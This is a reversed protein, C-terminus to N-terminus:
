IYDLKLQYTGSYGKSRCKDIFITPTVANLKKDDYILKDVNQYYFVVFRKYSRRFYFNIFQEIELTTIDRKVISEWNNEVGTRRNMNPDQDLIVAIQKKVKSEKNYFGYTVTFKKNKIHKILFQYEDDSYDEMKNWLNYYRDIDTQSM